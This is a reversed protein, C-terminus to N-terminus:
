LCSSAFSPTGHGACCLLTPHPIKVDKLGPLKAKHCWVAVLVSSSTSFSMATVAQPAVPSNWLPMLPAQPGLCNPSVQYEPKAKALNTDSSDISEPATLAM